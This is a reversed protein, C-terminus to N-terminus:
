KSADSFEPPVNRLGRRLAHNTQLTRVVGMAQPEPLSVGSAFSLERIADISIAISVSMRFTKHQTSFVPITM